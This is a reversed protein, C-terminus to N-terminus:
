ERFIHVSTWEADLVELLREYQMDFFVCLVVGHPRSSDIMSCILGGVSCIPSFCSRGGHPRSSDTMSSSVSWGAHLGLHMCPAVNLFRRTAIRGRRSGM